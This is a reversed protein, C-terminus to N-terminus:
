TGLNDWVDARLLEAVPSTDGHDEASEAFFGLRSCSGENVYIRTTIATRENVFVELVSQDFIAHIRLTEEQECSQSDLYTFLTHPASETGHNIRSDVLKPREVLFTETVPEWLLITYDATGASPLTLLARPPSLHPNCCRCVLVM